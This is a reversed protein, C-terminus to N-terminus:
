TIVHLDYNWKQGLLVLETLSRAAVYYALLMRKSFFCAKRKNAYKFAHRMVVDAMNRAVTLM